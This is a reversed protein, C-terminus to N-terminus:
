ASSSRQIPHQWQDEPSPLGNRCVYDVRCRFAELARIYAESSDAAWVDGLCRSSGTETAQYAFWHFM